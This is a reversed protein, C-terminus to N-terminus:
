HKVERYVIPIVTSAAPVLTGSKSVDTITARFPNPSMAMELEIPLLMKSM